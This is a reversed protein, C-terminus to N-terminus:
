RRYVGMAKQQQDQIEAIRMQIRTLVTAWFQAADAKEDLLLLEVPDGGDKPPVIVVAGAFPMPNARADNHDISEAMRRFRDSVTTAPEDTVIL